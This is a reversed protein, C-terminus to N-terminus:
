ALAPSPVCRRPDLLDPQTAMYLDFEGFRWGAALLARAAPHPGPLCVRARSGPPDLWSLVAVVGDAAAQDGIAQDAALHTIGFGPAAWGASGACAPRGALSATFSVGMPSAAWMLHDAGRDIGTWALELAAVRQTSATAVSWLAPSALRRVDGSLYLLPWWADLGFATYLPLASAHLSSFTMRRREGRWLADLIARGCGTGHAPPDVFLDTLMSVADAGSGVQRTAGYGAVTGAREAVLLSGHAMLHRQYAPFADDWDEEQGTARAIAAIAALDEGTAARVSVDAM